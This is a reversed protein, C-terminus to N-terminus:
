KWTYQYLNENSTNPINVLGLSDQLSQSHLKGEPIAGPIYYIEFFVRYSFIKTSTCNVISLQAVRGM